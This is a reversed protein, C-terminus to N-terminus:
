RLVFPARSILFAATTLAAQNREPTGRGGTGRCEISPFMLIAKIPAPMNPPIDMQASVRIQLAGTQRRLQAADAQVM